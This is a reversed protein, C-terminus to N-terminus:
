RGECLRQERRSLSDWCASVANRTPRNDPLLVFCDFFWQGLKRYEKSQRLENFRRKAARPSKPLM